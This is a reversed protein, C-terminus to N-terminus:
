SPDAITRAKDENQHMPGCKIAVRKRSARTSTEQLEAALLDAGARVRPIHLSSRACVLQLRSTRKGLDLKLEVLATPLAHRSCIRGLIVAGVCAEAARSAVGADIYPETV